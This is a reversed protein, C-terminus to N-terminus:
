RRILGSSGSRIRWIKMCCDGNKNDTTGNIVAYWGDFKWTGRPAPQASTKHARCNLTASCFHGMNDCNYLANWALPWNPNAEQFMQAIWGCGNLGCSFPNAKPTFGPTQCPFWDASATGASLTVGLVMAVRLITNKIHASTM